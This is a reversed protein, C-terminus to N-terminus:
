HMATPFCTPPFLTSVTLSHVCQSPEALSRIPANAYLVIGYAKSMPKLGLKKHSQFQRPSLKRLLTSGILGHVAHMATIDFLISAYQVGIHNLVGMCAM